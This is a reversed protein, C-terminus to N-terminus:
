RCADDEGSGLQRGVGGGGQLLAAVPVFDHYQLLLQAAYAVLDLIQIADVSGLSFPGYGLELPVLFDADRADHVVGGPPGELLGLGAGPTRIHGFRLAGAGGLGLAGRNGIALGDQGLALHLGEDGRGLGVDPHGVLEAAGGGLGEVAGAIELVDEVLM